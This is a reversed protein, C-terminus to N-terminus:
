KKLAYTFNRLNKQIFHGIEDQMPIQEISLKRESLEMINNLIDITKEKSPNTAKRLITPRRLKFSKKTKVDVKKFFENKRNQFAEKQKQLIINLHNDIKNARIDYHRL